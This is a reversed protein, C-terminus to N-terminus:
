PDTAVFLVPGETDLLPYYCNTISLLAFSRYPDVSNPDPFLPWKIYSAVDYSNALRYLTENLFSGAEGDQSDIIWEVDELLVAVRDANAMQGNIERFPGRCVRITKTLDEDTVFEAYADLGFQFKDIAEQESLLPTTDRILSRMEIAREAMADGFPLVGFCKRLAGDPLDWTMFHMRFDGYPDDYAVDFDFASDMGATEDIAAHWHRLWKRRNDESM